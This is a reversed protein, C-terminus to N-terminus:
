VSELLLAGVRGAGTWIRPMVMDLAVPGAVPSSWVFPMLAPRGANLVLVRWRNVHGHSVPRPCFAKM